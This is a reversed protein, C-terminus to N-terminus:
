QETIRLVTKFHQDAKAHGSPVALKEIPEKGTVLLVMVFLVIEKLSKM